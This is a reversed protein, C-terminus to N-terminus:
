PRERRRSAELDIVGTRLQQEVEEAAEDVLEEWVPMPIGLVVTIYEGGDRVRLEHVNRLPVRSTAEDVLTVWGQIGRRKILKDVDGQLERTMHEYVQTSRSRALQTLAAQWALRKSFDPMATRQGMGEAIFYQLGDVERIPSRLGHKASCGAVVGATLFPILYQVSRHISM